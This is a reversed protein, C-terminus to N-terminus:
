IIRITVDYGILPIEGVAPDCCALIHGMSVGSDARISSYQRNGVSSQPAPRFGTKQRHEPGRGAGPHAEYDAEPPSRQAAEDYTLIM